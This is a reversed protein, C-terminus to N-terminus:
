ENINFSCEEDLPLLSDTVVARYIENNLYHYETVIVGYETSIDYESLLAENEDYVSARVYRNNKSLALTHKREELLKKLEDLSTLGLEDYFDNDSAVTYESVATKIHMKEGDCVILNAGSEARYKKDSLSLKYRIVNRKNLYSYIIRFNRTYSKSEQLFNLIEEATYNLYLKEDSEEGAIIDPVTLVTTEEADADYLGLIIRAFEPMRMIDSKLFIIILFAILVAAASLIIILKAKQKVAKKNSNM